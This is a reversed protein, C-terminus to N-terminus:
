TFSHQCDYANLREALTNFVQRLLPPVVIETTVATDYSKGSASRLFCYKMWALKSLHEASKFQKQIPSSASIRRSTGSFPKHHSQNPSIFAPM